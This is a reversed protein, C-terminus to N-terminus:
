VTESMNVGLLCHAIKSWTKTGVLKEAIVLFGHVACEYM